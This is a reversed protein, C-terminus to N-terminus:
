PAGLGIRPRARDEARVPMPVYLDGREDHGPPVVAVHTGVELVERAHTAFGGGVVGALLGADDDAWPGVAVKPAGGAVDPKASAGVGSGDVEDVRQRRELQAPKIPPKAA